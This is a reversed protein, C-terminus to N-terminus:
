AAAAKPSRRRRGLLMAGGLGLVSLTSPEPVASTRSILNYGIVDLTTIDWPTIAHAQSPSTFANYPDSPTAGSWDQLDAGAISNFAQLNTVGGDISFYAGTDSAALSRTGPATYRFLDFALFSSSINGITDNLGYIRGLIESLEHEAVGIFDFAGTVGRNNPDYTYTLTNNFSFTGDSAPDNAAVVGLAKAEARPLWFKGGGTPDTGGLSANATADNASSQDNILLSRVQAYSATGILSTSSSGLGTTTTQVNINVTIPDSYLAEFEAAAYQTAAQQSANVSTGYTLNITLAQAPVSAMALIPLAWLFGRRARSARRPSSYGCPNNKM